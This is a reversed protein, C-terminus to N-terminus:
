GAQYSLRADAASIGWANGVQVSVTGAAHKPLTVAITHTTLVKFDYVPVDGVRVVSTTAFNSGTITLTTGGATSASSASLRTVVAGAGQRGSSLPRTAGYYQGPYVEDMPTVGIGFGSQQAQIVNGNGVYIVVHHIGARKHNTSYFLLDGPQLEAVSPHYRGAQSYQTEAFHALGTYRAWSYLVLGSCDFGVIRCDFWGGGGHGNDCVGLSPGASTGGAWSYPLGIWAEARGAASKGMAATWKSSKAATPVRAAAARKAKLHSATVREQAATRGGNLHTGTFSLPEYRFRDAATEASPGAKTVVRVEVLGRAHRPATVLLATSSLVRLQTGRVSGFSVRTVSRFNSGTVELRAGGSTIGATVDLKAVTPLVASTSASAVAVGAFAVALASVLVVSASRVLRVASGM